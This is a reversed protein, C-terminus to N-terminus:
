SACLLRLKPFYSRTFGRDSTLLRDAQVLAHAAIVFDPILHTRPGGRLRYARFVRGALVAAQLNVGDFRIGLGSVLRRFAVEDDILAFTEAAAVECMVVEGEARCGHVIKLWADATSEPRAIAVLVSADVASIM